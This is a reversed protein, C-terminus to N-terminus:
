IGTRGDSPITQDFPKLLLRGRETLISESIMQVATDYNKMYSQAMPPIPVAARV